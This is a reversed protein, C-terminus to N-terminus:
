FLSQLNFPNLIWIILLADLVYLVGRCISEYISGTSFFETNPVLRFKVGPLLWIGARTLMDLFLHSLLGLSFGAILITLITISVPSFWKHLYVTTLALFLVVIALM